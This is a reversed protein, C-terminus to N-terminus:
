PTAAPLATSRNWTRDWVGRLPASTGSRPWGWGAACRWRLEAPRGPVAKVEVVDRCVVGSAAAVRPNLEGFAPARPDYRWWLADATRALLYLGAVAAVTEAAARLARPTGRPPSLVAWFLSWGAVVLAAQLLLRGAARTDAPQGPRAWWWGVATSALLGVILATALVAAWGWAPTRRPAAPASSPLPPPM